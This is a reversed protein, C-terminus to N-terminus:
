IRRHQQEGSEETYCFAAAVPATTAEVHEETALCRLGMDTATVTFTASGPTRPRITLLAGGEHGVVNADTDRLVVRATMYSTVWTFYTDSGVKAASADSIKVAYTLSQADNAGSRGDVDPDMFGSALEYNTDQLRM